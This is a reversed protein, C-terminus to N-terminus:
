PILGTNDPRPRTLYGNQEGLWRLVDLASLLGVVEGSNDAVIPLRHVGEFAMLAAAQALSTSARLSYTIPTMIDRVVGRSVVEEHFGSGLAYADGEDRPRPEGCADREDWQQVPPRASQEVTLPPGDPLPREFVERLLDTKSVVGVPNGQADVVPVGSINRSLLLRTLEGIDLDETVCVVDQTMVQAVPTREGASLSSEADPWEGAASSARPAEAAFSCSLFSHQGSHDLSFGQCRECSSCQQVPVCRDRRRCVVKLQRSTIGDGFHTERVLVRLRRAPVSSWLEGM